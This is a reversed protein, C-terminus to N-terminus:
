RGRGVRRCRRFGTVSCWCLRFRQETRGVDSGPPSGMGMGMVVMSRDDSAVRSFVGSRCCRRAPTLSAIRSPLPWARRGPSRFRPISQRRMRRGSTLDTFHGSTVLGARQAPRVEVSVTRHVPPVGIRAGCLAPGSCWRCSSRATPRCRSQEGSFCRPAAAPAGAKRPWCPARPEPAPRSKLAPRRTAREACLLAPGRSPGRGAESILPDPPGNRPLRKRTGADTFFCPRRTLTVVGSAGTLRGAERIAILLHTQPDPTSVGRESFRSYGPRPQPRCADHDARYGRRRRERGRTPSCRRSGM